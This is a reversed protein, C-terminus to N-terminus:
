RKGQPKEFVVIIDLPIMDPILPLAASVGFSSRRITTTAEFSVARKGAIVGAGVLNADLIVAKTIGKLTLRGAIRAKRGMPTVSASEFHAVPFRAADFFDPGRLQADVQKLTTTLNRIPIDIVVRTRAPQRPDIVLSGSVKVFTGRYAAIGLQNITFAVQSRQPDVGYRGPMIRTIDAAGPQQAAATLSAMALGAILLRAADM